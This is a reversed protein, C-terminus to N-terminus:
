GIGRTVMRYFLLRYLLLVHRRVLRQDILILSTGLMCSIGALGAVLDTDKTTDNGINGLTRQHTSAASLIEETSPLSRHDTESEGPSNTVGDSRGFIIHLDVYICM